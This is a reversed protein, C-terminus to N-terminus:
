EGADVSTQGLRRYAKPFRRMPVGALKSAARSGKLGSSSMFSAVLCSFVSISVREGFALSLTNFRM